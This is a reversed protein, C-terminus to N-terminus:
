HSRLHRCLVLGFEVFEESLSARRHVEAVVVSRVRELPREADHAHCKQLNASPEGFSTSVASRILAAPVGLRRALQATSTRANERLLALLQQDTQSLKM